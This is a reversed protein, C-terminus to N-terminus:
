PLFVVQMEPLKTWWPLAGYSAVVEEEPYLELMCEYWSLGETKQFHWWEVDFYSSRWNSLANRREWGYDAAITTFDVYYGSPIEARWEGGLATAVGGKSRSSLDWPTVRLPEGM